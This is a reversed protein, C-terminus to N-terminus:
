QQQDDGHFLMPDAATPGRIGHYEAADKGCAFTAAASDAVERAIDNANKNAQADVYGVPCGEEDGPQGVRSIALVQGKNEADGTFFRQIAAYPKGTEDVRWEIKPNMYNFSGFSEFARDIISRKLYGYHISQRLDGEKFLVQYKGLGPCLSSMFDGGPEDPNPEVLSKCTDLLLDTYVSEASRAASTFAIFMTLGTAVSLARLHM